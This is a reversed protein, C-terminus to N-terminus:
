MTVCAWRGDSARTRPEQFRSQEAQSGDGEDALEAAAEGGPIVDEESPLQPAEAKQEESQQQGVLARYDGESLALNMAARERCGMRREYYDRPSGDAGADRGAESVNEDPMLVDEGTRSDKSIDKKLQRVRELEDSWERDSQFMRRWVHYTRTKIMGWEARDRKVKEEADAAGFAQTLLRHHYHDPTEGEDAEVPQTGRQALQQMAELSNNTRRQEYALIEGRRRSVELQIITQRHSKKLEDLEDEQEDKKTQLELLYKESVWNDGQLPPQPVRAIKLVLKILNFLFDEDLWKIHELLKGMSTENIRKRITEPFSDWATPEDAVIPESSSRNPDQPLQTPANEATSAEIPASGHAAINQQEVDGEADNQQSEAADPAVNEKDVEPNEDVRPQKRSRTSHAPVAQEQEVNEDDAEADTENHKRKSSRKSPGAAEPEPSVNEKDDTRRRRTVRGKGTPSRDPVAPEVAPGAREALRARMAQDVTLGNAAPVNQGDLYANYRTKAPKTAPYGPVRDNLWEIFDVTQVESADKPVTEGKHKTKYHSRIESFSYGGGDCGPLPCLLRKKRAAPADEPVPANNPVPADAPTPVDDAAADDSAASSSSSSSDSSSPSLSGGSRIKGLQTVMKAGKQELYGIEAEQSRRGVTLQIKLNARGQKRAEKAQAGFKEAGKRREKRATKNAEAETEAAARKEAAVDYAAQRNENRERLERAEEPARAARRAREAAYYEGVAGEEGEGEIEPVAAAGPISKRATKASKRTMKVDVLQRGAALQEERTGRRSSTYAANAEHTAAIAHANLEDRGRLAAPSVNINGNADADANPNPEVGEAPPDNPLSEDSFRKSNPKLRPKQRLAIEDETPTAKKKPARKKIKPDTPKSTALEQLDEDDDIIGNPDRRRRIRTSKRTGENANEAPADATTDEQPAATEEAAVNENEDAETVETDDKATTRKKPAAKKKPATAKKPADRRRSAAAKGKKSGATGEQEIEGNESESEGVNDNKKAAKKRHDREPLEEGAKRKAGRAM